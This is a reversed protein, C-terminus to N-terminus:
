PQCKKARRLYKIAKQLVDISDRAYGLMLNCARCTLGRVDGTEHNHDINIKDFPGGCCACKNGQAELRRNFEYASMGYRSEMAWVARRTLGSPHIVAGSAKASALRAEKNNKWYQKRGESTCTRCQSFPAKGDMRTYFETRPKLEGCGTCRKSPELQVAEAV